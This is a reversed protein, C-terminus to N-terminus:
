RDAARHARQNTATRRQFVRTGAATLGPSTGYRRRQARFPEELLRVVGGAGFPVAREKNGKGVVRITEGFPLFDRVDLTLMEGLRVGTGYLFELIARDRLGKLTATDPLGMMRRIRDESVITPISRRRIQQSLYLTPDEDVLRRAAAFRFFTRISSIKRMMSRSGLGRKVQAGLYSRVERIDIDDLEVREGLREHVHVSLQALDAVYAAVTRPSLEREQTVYERFKEIATDIKV